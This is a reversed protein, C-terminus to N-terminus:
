GIFSNNKIITIAFNTCYVNWHSSYDLFKCDTQICENLQFPHLSYTYKHNLWGQVDKKNQYQKATHMHHHERSWTVMGGFWTIMSGPWTVMSGFWTIRPWTVMSGLNHSWTIGPWTIMSGSWTTISWALACLFSHSSYSCAVGYIQFRTSNNFCNRFISIRM